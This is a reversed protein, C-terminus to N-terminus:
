IEDGDARRPLPQAAAPAAPLLVRGPGNLHRPRYLMMRRRREARYCSGTICGGLIQRLAATGRLLDRTRDGRNCQCAVTLCACRASTSVPCFSSPHGHACGAEFGSIQRLQSSCDRQGPQPLTLLAMVAKARALSHQLPMTKKAITAALTETVAPARPVPPAGTATLLACPTANRAAKAFGSPPSCQHYVLIPVPHLHM